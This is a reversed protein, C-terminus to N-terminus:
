SKNSLYSMNVGNSMEDKKSLEGETDLDSETNCRSNINYEMQLLDKRAEKEMYIKTFKQLGCFNLIIIENYVASVILLIIIIILKFFFDFNVAEGEFLLILLSGFREISTGITYHTPSFKDVIFFININYLFNSIGLGFVYLLDLKNNGIKWFRTFVISSDGNEDPIDIFIFPISFLFSFFVVFLGRYLIFYYLSVSYFSLIIKSLVDEFSYFIECFIKMINYYFLVEWDKKKFITIQEYITLGILFLINIVLSFYHHRYIPSHLILVCLLCTAIMNITYMTNLDIKKFYIFTKTIIISYTVNAYKGVFDFISIILQLRFVKFIKKNRNKNIIENLANQNQSTITQNSEVAEAKKLNRSRIAIIIIPFIALLDSLSYSYYKVFSSIMDSTLKRSDKVVDKIIAIIFLSLFLLHNRNFEFFRIYKM